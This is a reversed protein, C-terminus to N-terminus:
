RARTPPKAKRERRLEDLRVRMRELARRAEDIAVDDRAPVPASRTRANEPTWRPGRQLNAM